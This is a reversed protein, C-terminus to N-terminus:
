PSTTLHPNLAGSLILTFKGAGTENLHTTSAFLLDSLTPPLNTLSVDARMWESWRALM